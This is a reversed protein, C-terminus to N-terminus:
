IFLQQQWTDLSACMLVSSPFYMVDFLEARYHYSLLHIVPIVAWCVIPRFTVTVIHYIAIMVLYQSSISSGDWLSQVVTTFVRFVCHLWVSFVLLLRGNCLCSIDICERWLFWSIVLQLSYATFTNWCYWLFIVSIYVLRIHLVTIVSISVYRLLSAIKIVCEEPELEVDAVVQGSVGVIM